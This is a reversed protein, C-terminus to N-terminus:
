NQIIDWLQGRLEKAKNEYWKIKELEREVPQDPKNGIRMRYKMCCMDCHLAVAEKGWIAVMMDITEISSQKYHSPNIFDYPKPLISTKNGLHVDNYEAKIEGTSKEQNEEWVIDDIDCVKIDFSTPIYYRMWKNAVCCYLSDSDFTCEASEPYISRFFRNAKDKKEPNGKIAVKQELWDQKTYKM